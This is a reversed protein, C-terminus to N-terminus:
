PLNQQGGWHLAAQKKCSDVVVLAAMAEVVPVIRPCICPDHRGETVVTQENGDKDVGQQPFSISSAPKVALRFLIEQGTSIGGLIGGANNSLFGSSDRWDNHESGKMDACGFGSGFEVGKVAGLSLMARAIQADLKEFVPDGIGSELGNIRCEIIGGLSNGEDAVQLIRKEMEAAAELDPARLPNKEIVELDVTKCQIGAARLTYATVTIGKAQLIKRAVAGGAVRAATERGSARGSGRHDRIGYKMSYTFDAHGPRYLNKIAEYDGSRMDKNYLVMGLATGTTKGEFVGSLILVKDYEKRLTTISSQGPKRRDMEKQIDEENLEIGPTVGDVIVGVGAGHSEGFTTIRFIEGFSNAAM